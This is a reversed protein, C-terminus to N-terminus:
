RLTEVLVLWQDLFSGHRSVWLFLKEPFFQRFLPSRDCRPWVRRHRSSDRSLGPGAYPTTNPPPWGWFATGSDGFHRHCAATCPKLMAKGPFDRQLALIHGGTPIGKTRVTQVKYYQFKVGSWLIASWLIWSWLLGFLDVYACTYPKHELSRDTNWVIVNLTQHKGFQTMSLTPTCMHTCKHWFLWITVGTYICPNYSYGLQICM